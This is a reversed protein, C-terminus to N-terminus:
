ITTHNNFTLLLFTRDDQERRGGITGINLIEVLRKIRDEADSINNMEDLLPNLFGSFPVNADFYFNRDKDYSMCQWTFNECGDSMLVIVKPNEQLAFTEPIFVDSMRFAPIKYQRNWENPIFITSNAEEGKHPTMLSKWTGDQSLYGMRGDGLHATLIGKPTILALLLTANFDRAELGDNNQRTKREILAQIIEFINRTEIYWEKESPFYENKIWEKEDILQKILKSALECNAKSGRASEKASGAGDSVIALYWGDHLIEFKHYDQCPIGQRIHSRGQMSVGVAYSKKSLSLSTQVRIEPCDLQNDKEQKLTTESNEVIPKNSLSETKELVVIEETMERHRSKIFIRLIFMRLQQFFKKM